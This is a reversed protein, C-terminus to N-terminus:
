GNRQEDADDEGAAHGYARAFDEMIDSEDAMGQVYDRLLPELDDEWLEDHTMHNLKLFYAAGIQYHRGLERTDAIKGNLARMRRKAEEEKGGLADLMATQEDAKLEIFRFRRRMAFDFSDVSRDIDNMTGIIYVNEPIYFKEDPDDHLNAYQTSVAGKPGRYGPDVAFFLEGFIKSIEGRNIEDIIFVYSKQTEPQVPVSAKKKKRKNIEQYLILEYSYGHTAHKKNFLATVDKVMKLESESELMKRIEAMSLALKNATANGPINIYVHTDSVDTVTFRSKTITEFETVGFDISDFFADIAEQLSVEKEITQVSKKSNEWNKRAKDAFRKFVGDRLEFGVSGDDSTVPRLGEVFDTYDYSPHFQVFGIQAKQEPTLEDDSRAAGGSVIDAAIAKALYTKGTGPAGHFIINKSKLLTESYPNQYTVTQEDENNTKIEANMTESPIKDRYKLIFRDTPRGFRKLCEQVFHLTSFINWCYICFTTGNECEYTMFEITNRHAKFEEVSHYIGRIMEGDPEYQCIPFNEREEDTLALIEKEYAQFAIRPLTQNSIRRERVNRKRAFIAGDLRILYADEIRYDDGLSLNDMTFRADTSEISDSTITMEYINYASKM